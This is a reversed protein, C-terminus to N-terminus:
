LNVPGDGDGRTFHLQDQQQALPGIADSLPRSAAFIFNSPGGLFGNSKLARTWAAHSQNSVILDVGREQLSDRAAQVVALADDPSAFCDVLSGLRLDGFYKNNQMRTDLLVAWGIPQGGRSVKLCLFQRGPPYLVNLEASGRSAVMTYRAQARHWLEDAWGGFSTIVEVTVTRDRPATRMTQLVKTGIWGVGTLALANALVRRGTTQRLPAVQRLFRAPHNVRFFFPVACLEWKMAKLMQPLPRDFGGMGLCFLLPQAKMAARLMHVGVSSYTKNVIGESIPLHYYVVPRMEGRLFFDQFKLIYAGRVEDGEVALHFEQYLRRGDRRPLWAPIHSEPFHFEPSVGGAALRRNFAKVAPVWEETYPQIAIAM